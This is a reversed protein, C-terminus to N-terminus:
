NTKKTFSGGSVDVTTTDPLIHGHHRLIHIIDEQRYYHPPTTGTFIHLYECRASNAGGAHSLYFDRLAQYLQADTARDVGMFRRLRPALAYTREDQSVARLPPRITLWEDFFLEDPLADHWDGLTRFTRREHYPVVLQGGGRYVENWNREVGDNVIFSENIVMSFFGESNKFWIIHPTLNDTMPHGFGHPFM